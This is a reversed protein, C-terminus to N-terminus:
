HLAMAESERTPHSHFYSKDSLMGEIRARTKERRQLYIPNWKEEPVRGHRRLEVPNSESILKRMATNLEVPLNPLKQIQQKLKESVAERDQELCYELIEWAVTAHFREEKAIIKMMQLAAPDETHSLAEDALDANFDEILCGDLVTEAALEAWPHKSSFGLKEGMMSPFADFSKEADAYANALTLTRRAHEIEQLGCYHLRELLRPKAGLSTLIWILRAFAPVSAHEKQADYYWLKALVERTTADLNSCDPKPGRAWTNGSVLKAHAIKNRIRLPRGWASFHIGELIHFLLSILGGGMSLILLIFSSLFKEKRALNIMCAVFCLCFLCFSVITAHALNYSVSAILSVLAAIFLLTPLYKRM